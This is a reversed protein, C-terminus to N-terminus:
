AAQSVRVRYVAPIHRTEVKNVAEVLVRAQDLECAVLTHGEVVLAAFNLLANVRAFIQLAELDGQYRSWIHVTVTDNWGIGVSAGGMTHYPKESGSGVQVFPYPQAEPVDNFVGTVLSLLTSDSALVGYVAQYIAPLASV